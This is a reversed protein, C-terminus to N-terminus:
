GAGVAVQKSAQQKILADKLKAKLMLLRSKMNRKELISPEGEGEKTLAAQIQKVEAILAKTNNKEVVAAAKARSVAARVPTEKTM